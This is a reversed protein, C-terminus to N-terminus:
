DSIAHVILELVSPFAAAEEATKADVIDFKAQTLDDDLEQLYRTAGADNGVQIFLITLEDDTKQSNAQNVIVSKAAERSNPAGDTFVALFKKKKSDKLLDIGASLGEALPTGGRPSNNKFIRAVDKSSVNAFSQSGYGSFIVLNIGNPSIKEVEEAFHVAEKGVADWRTSYGFWKSKVDKTDMSGSGDVIITFDYEAVKSLNVM